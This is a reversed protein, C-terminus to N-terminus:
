YGYVSIEASLTESSPESIRVSVLPPAEPAVEFAAFETSTPSTGLARWDGAEDKGEVTLTAPTKVGSRVLV